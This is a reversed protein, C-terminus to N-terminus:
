LYGHATKRGSDCVYMPAVTRTRTLVKSGTTRSQRSTTAPNVVRSVTIGWLGPGLDRDSLGVPSPKFSAVAEEGGQPKVTM